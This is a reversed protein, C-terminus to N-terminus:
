WSCWNPEGCYRCGGPCTVVAEVELQLLMCWAGLPLQVEEVWGCDVRRCRSPRLLKKRGHLALLGLVVVEAGAVLRFCRLSREAVTV